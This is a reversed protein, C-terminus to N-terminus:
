MGTVAKESNGNKNTCWNYAKTQAKWHPNRTGVLRISQTHRQTTAKQRGSM